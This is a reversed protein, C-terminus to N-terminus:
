NLSLIIFILVTQSPSASKTIKEQINGLKHEPLLPCYILIGIEKRNSIIIGLWERAGMM